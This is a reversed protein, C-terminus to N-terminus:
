VQSYGKKRLADRAIALDGKLDHWSKLSTPTNTKFAELPLDTNVRRKGLTGGYTNFCLKRPPGDALVVYAKVDITAMDFHLQPKMWVEGYKKVEELDVISPVVDQHNTETMVKQRRVPHSVVKARKIMDVSEQDCEHTVVEFSGHTPCNLKGEEVPGKFHCIPCVASYKGSVLLAWAKGLSNSPLLRRVPFKLKQNSETLVEIKNDNDAPGNITFLEESVTGIPTVTRVKQGIEVEM